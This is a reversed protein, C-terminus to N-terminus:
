WGRLAHASCPSAVGGLGLPYESFLRSLGLVVDSLSNKNKIRCLLLMCVRKNHFKRVGGLDSEPHVEWKKRVCEPPVYFTGGLTIINITFYFPTYKKYPLQPYIKWYHPYISSM